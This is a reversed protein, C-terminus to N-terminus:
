SHPHLSPESLPHVSVPGYRWLLINALYFVMLSSFIFYSLRTSLSMFTVIMWVGHFLGAFRENLYQYASARFKREIPCRPSSFCIECPGPHVDFSRIDLSSAKFHFNYAGTRNGLRLTRVVGDMIKISPRSEHLWM